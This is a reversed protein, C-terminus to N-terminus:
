RKYTARRSTRPDPDRQEPAVAIERLELKGCAAHEVVLAREEHADDGRGARPLRPQEFLEELPELRARRIRPDRDRLAKRVALPKRVPREAGDEVPEDPDPLVGCRGLHALRDRSPERQVFHRVLVRDACEERRSDAHALLLRDIARPEESRPAGRDLEGCSCLWEDEHELVEVPRAVAKEVEDLEDHLRAAARGDEHDREGPRLEEITARGPAASSPIVEGQRKLREGVARDRLEDLM